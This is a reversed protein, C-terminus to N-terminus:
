ASIFVLRKRGERAGETGDARFGAKELLRWSPTNQPRCEAHIRREPYAGVLVSVLHTLAEMALGQGRSASSFWYGVEIDGSGHLHTGVTGLLEPADHRWVGWFCDRGDGDGAILQEADSHKFPRSLFHIADLISPEDTMARFVEADPLGLPRLYLRQTSVSPLASLPKETGNM